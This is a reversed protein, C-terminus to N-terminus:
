QWWVHMQCSHVFHCIWRQNSRSKEFDCPCFISMLNPTLWTPVFLLRHVRPSAINRARVRM